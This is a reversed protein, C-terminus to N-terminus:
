KILCVPFTCFMSGLDMSGRRPGPRHVPDMLIHVPGMSARNKSGRFIAFYVINENVVREGEDGRVTADLSKELQVLEASVSQQLLTETKRYITTEAVKMQHENDSM